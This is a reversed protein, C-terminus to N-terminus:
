SVRFDPTLNEIEDSILVPELVSVTRESDRELGSSVVGWNKTRIPITTPVTDPANELLLTGGDFSLRM